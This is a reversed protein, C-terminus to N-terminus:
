FLGAAAHEVGLLESLGLLRAAEVFRDSPFDIIVERQVKVATRTLILLLQLTATDISTVASADINIRREGDLAWALREYLVSINHITQVSELVILNDDLSKSDLGESAGDFPSIAAEEDNMSHAEFTSFDTAGSEIEAPNNAADPSVEIEADHMWALPDYGILSEEGNSEAMM